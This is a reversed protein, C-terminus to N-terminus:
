KKNILKEFQANQIRATVAINKKLGKRTNIEITKFENGWEGDTTFIVEITSKEGPQVPKKPYLIELCGCENKIHSITLPEGGTNEFRFSYSVVEGAKLAGFNHIEDRFEFKAAVKQKIAATDSPNKKKQDQSTQTNCGALFLATAIFVFATFRSM